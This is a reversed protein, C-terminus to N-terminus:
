CQLNSRGRILMQGGMSLSWRKDLDLWHTELGKEKAARADCSLIKLMAAFSSRIPLELMQIM